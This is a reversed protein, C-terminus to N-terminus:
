PMLAAALREPVFCGPVCFFRQMHRRKVKFADAPGKITNGLFPKLLQGLALLAPYFLGHKIGDGSYFCFLLDAQPSGARRLVM